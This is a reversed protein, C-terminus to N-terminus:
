SAQATALKAILALWIRFTWGTPVRLVSWVLWCSGASGWGEFRQLRQWMCALLMCAVAGEWGGAWLGAHSQCSDMISSM